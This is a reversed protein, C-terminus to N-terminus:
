CSCYFGVLRALRAAQSIWPWRYLLTRLGFHPPETLQRTARLSECDLVWVAGWRGNNRPRKTLVLRRRPFVRLQSWDGCALRACACRQGVRGACGCCFVLVRSNETIARVLSCNELLHPQPEVPSREVSTGSRYRNSLDSTRCWGAADKKKLTKRRNLTSIEDKQVNPGSPLTLKKKKSASADAQLFYTRLTRPFNPPGPKATPLCRVPHAVHAVQPGM